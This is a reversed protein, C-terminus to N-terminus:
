RDKYKEILDVIGKEPIEGQARDIEVGDNDLFIFLPLKDDIKYKEVIDKSENFDFYESELWSNETEIKQWRPRMILCGPCWEAGIKLVKM